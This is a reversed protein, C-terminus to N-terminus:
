RAEHTAGKKETRYDIDLGFYRAKDNEYELWNSLKAIRSGRSADSPKKMEDDLARLFQGVASTLNTLYIREKIKM